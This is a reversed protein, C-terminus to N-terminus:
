GGLSQLFAKHRANKPIEARYVLCIKGTYFSQPLLRRLHNRRGESEPLLAAFDHHAAAFSAAIGYDAIPLLKKGRLWRIFQPLKQIEPNYVIRSYKTSQGFLAVDEYTLTKIVLGPFRQPDVVVAYDIESNLVKRIAEHSPTLVHELDLDNNDALLKTLPKLLYELTVLRHAGIRLTGVIKSSSEKALRLADSFNENSQRLPGLLTKAEETLALGRNGRIFLKIGFSRELKQLHKSVSSQPLNLRDAARSINLTEAAVLFSKWEPTVLESM